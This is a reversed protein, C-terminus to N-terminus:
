LCKSNRHNYNFKGRGGYGGSDSGAGEPNDFMAGEGDLVFSYNDGAIARGGVEPSSTDVEKMTVIREDGFTWKKAGFKGRGIKSDTGFYRRLGEGGSVFIIILLLAGLSDVINLTGEIDVPSDSHQITVIDSTDFGVQQSSIFHRTEVPCSNKNCVRKELYPCDIGGLASKANSQIARLQIGSGCTQTCPTWDTWASDLKCAEPCTQLLCDRNEHCDQPDNVYYLPPPNVINDLLLVAIQVDKTSSPGREVRYRTQASPGCASSPLNIFTFLIMIM